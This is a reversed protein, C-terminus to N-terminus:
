NFEAGLLKTPDGEQECFARFSQFLFPINGGAQPCDMVIATGWIPMGDDGYKYPVTAHFDRGNWAFLNIILVEEVSSAPNTLFDKHLAGNEYSAEDLPASSMVGEALYAIWEWSLTNNKEKLQTVLADLLHPINQVPAGELVDPLFFGGNNKDVGIIISVSDAPGNEEHCIHTKNEKFSEILQQLIRKMEGFSDTFAGWDTM